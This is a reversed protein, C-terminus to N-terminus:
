DFPPREGAVDYRMVHGGLISGGTDPASAIRRWATLHDESEWREYVNARVPDLPDATIAVDLCGPAQRARGLLDHHAAVFGDRETADVTVYGAIILM